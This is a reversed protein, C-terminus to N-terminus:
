ADGEGQGMVGRSEQAWARWADVTGQGRVCLFKVDLPLYSWAALAGRCVKERSWGVKGLLVVGGELDLILWRKGASTVDDGVRVCYWTTVGSVV